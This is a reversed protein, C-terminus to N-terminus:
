AGLLSKVSLIIPMKRGTKYCRGPIKIKTKFIKAIKRKTESLTKEGVALNYKKKLILRLNKM